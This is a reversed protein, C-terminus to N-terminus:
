ATPMASKAMQQVVQQSQSQDPNETADDQGVFIVKNGQINKVLTDLPPQQLMDYVDTIDLHIDNNAFYDLLDDKTYNNTDIRADDIESKLQSVVAAFKVVEPDELEFLFM